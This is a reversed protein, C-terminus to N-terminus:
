KTESGTPRQSLMEPRRYTDDMFQRVEAPVWKEIPESIIEYLGDSVHRGDDRGVIMTGHIPGRGYLAWARSNLPLDQGGFDDLVGVHVPENTLLPTKLTVVTEYEYGTSGILSDTDVWEIPGEVPIKICRM